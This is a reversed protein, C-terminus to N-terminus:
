WNKMLCLGLMPDYMKIVKFGCKELGKAIFHNHAEIVVPRNKIHRAWSETVMPTEYGECDIKACDWDLRKLHRESFPETLIEVKSLDIKRKSIEKIRSKVPEVCIVKKAGHKLFVEATDGNYAGVDLVTANKLPLQLYAHIDFASIVDPSKGKLRCWISHLSWYQPHIM